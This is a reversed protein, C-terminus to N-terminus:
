LAKLSVIGKSSKVVTNKMVQELYENPNIINASKKDNEKKEISNAGDIRKLAISKALELIGLLEVVNSCNHILKIVGEETIIVKFDYEYVKGM